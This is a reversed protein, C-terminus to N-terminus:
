IVHMVRKHKYKEKTDYLINRVLANPHSKIRNFYNVTLKHIYDKIYEVKLDKHMQSILSFRRYQGIIRLFKNQVIQLKNINTQSTMSWVPCAYLMAARIQSKYLIVKSKKSLYKNKFVPYLKILSAIARSSIYNIHDSFILKKDLIGGLYKVKELWKLKLNDCCVQSNLLPRRKTFLIAETKDKNMKIKWKSFYRKHVNFAQQLRKTIASIRYSSTSLLKDDAFISEDVNSLKPADNIFVIFLLPGLVSGQPVGALVDKSHSVAGNLMVFFDRNELYSCILLILYQPFNYKILKYILGSHWVTPFAAEIDLLLAGTHMKKNFKVTIDNVLRALQDTTSHGLRFGFQGQILIRNEKLFALLRIKIIKEFIKSMHSLLSIPRFGSLQTLDKNKKHLPIVKAIKLASPFHGTCFMGNILKVIFVIGKRPLNKLVRASILDHGAAKSNKLTKIAKVVEKYSTFKIEDILVKQKSFKKVTNEVKKTFYPRGLNEFVNSLSSFYEAFANARDLDSKLEVGNTDFLTSSNESKRSYIKAYKWISGDQFNLKQFFKETNEAEFVRLHFKVSKELKKLFNKTTIKPDNQYQKRVKNKLAILSKLFKPLEKRQFNVKKTPVNNKLAININETLLGIQNELEDATHISFILNLNENLDKRFKPWNAREYNFIISNKIVNHNFKVFIEVPNHDSSLRAKTTPVTYNMGGKLLFLDIVSPRGITPFNTFNPPAAITVNNELCFDLLIDGNKNNDFCHWETRKCNLDGMIILNNGTFLAKLDELCLKKNPPKYVQGIVLNQANSLIKIGVFEIEGSVNLKFEFHEINRKVFIAVGGGRKNRSQIYTKYGPIKLTCNLETKTECVGAIDYDNTYM